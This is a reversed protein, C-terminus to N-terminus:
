KNEMKCCAKIACGARTFSVLKTLAIRCSQNANAALAVCVGTGICVTTGRAGVHKAAVSAELWPKPPKQVVVCELVNHRRGSEGLRRFWSIVGSEGLPDMDLLSRSSAAMTM